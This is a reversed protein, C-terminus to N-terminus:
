IGGRPFPVPPRLHANVGGLAVAFDGDGSEKVALGIGCRLFDDTEGGVVVRSRAKGILGADIDEENAVREAHDNEAVVVSEGDREVFHDVVGAGDAAAGVVGEDDGVHGEAGIVGVDGFGKAVGDAEDFFGAGFGDFDFAALATEFEDRAEGFGFNGYHSVDAERGLGDVGEAAIADLAFGGVGGFLEEAVRVGYFGCAGEGYDEFGDRAFEGRLDSALQVDGRDADAGAGVAVALDKDDVVEEAEGEVRRRFEGALVGVDAFEDGGGDAGVAVVDAVAREWGVGLGVVGAFGDLAGFWDVDGALRAIRAHAGGDFSIEIM